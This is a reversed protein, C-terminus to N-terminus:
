MYTSNVDSGVNHHQPMLWQKCCRCGKDPHQNSDLQQKRCLKRTIFRHLCCIIIQTSPDQGCMHTVRIYSRGEALGARATAAMPLTFWFISLRERETDNQMEFLYIHLVFIYIYYNDHHGCKETTLKGYSQLLGTVIKGDLILCDPFHLVLQFRFLKM